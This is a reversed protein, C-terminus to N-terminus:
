DPPTHHDVLRALLATLQRRESASLPALLEDQASAVLRDLSALHRRGAATIRVTNRRRDSPDPGREVLKREDLATVAATVDSRDLGVQRGLAAQSAPGFEELAALMAYQGRNTGVAAFQAGVTQQAM